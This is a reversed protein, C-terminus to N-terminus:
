YVTDTNEDDPPAPRSIVTIRFLKSLEDVIFAEVNPVHGGIELVSTFNQLIKLIAADDCTWTKGNLEALADGFEIKIM